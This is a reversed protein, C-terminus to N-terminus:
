IWVIVTNVADADEFPNDVAAEESVNHDVDVATCEVLYASVSVVNPCIAEHM